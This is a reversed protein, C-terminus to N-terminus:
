DFHKLVSPQEVNPHRLPQLAPPCSDLQNVTAITFIAFIHQDYLKKATRQVARDRKNHRNHKPPSDPKKHKTFYQWISLTKNAAEKKARKESNCIEVRWCHFLRNNNEIPFGCSKGEVPDTCGQKTMRAGCPLNRTSFKHTRDLKKKAWKKYVLHFIDWDIDDFENMNWSFREVYQQRLSPLLLHEQLFSPINRTITCGDFNLQVKVLPDLPVQLKPPLHCGEHCIFPIGARVYM